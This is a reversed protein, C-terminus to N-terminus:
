RSPAAATEPDLRFRPQQPDSARTEGRRHARWGNSVPMARGTGFARPSISAGPPMRRRDAEADDIRRLTALVVEADLGRAVLDEVGEGYHVYREVITDLVRYSPLSPDAEREASTQKALVREPVTVRETNRHRALEYLLTKSCDKLPAFDGVLDGHLTAGGISLETKNGTALVLRGDADALATLVAARARPAAPTPRRDAPLQPAVRSLATATGDLVPDVGVVALEIGLNEAVTRADRLEEEPTEPAPMAVGLVNEAGLAAVAVDATVAADIGGSLGFLAREFGNKRAFDRTATVLARWIQTHESDPEVIRPAPAPERLPLPRTHVTRTPGTVARPPGVQVDVVARDPEFAAARYRLAGDRDVILSGGDFVLGDQGGVLNVYVLPVGNRRAVRAALQHRGKAKTRHWPSANPALIVQAGGAAQREPPGDGSWLDECISVGATVQGVAWLQGPQDGPAINKGEDYIGHTPLLTKHYRGREEGNSLMAASIAVSREISDWSRRPPVRSVTSLVTVTKGSRAALRATAEEADGVFERHLVLDSVPYGTLALEPLVLVDARHREAWDMTEGIREANGTIDGVVNPLQAVAVRLRPPTTAM